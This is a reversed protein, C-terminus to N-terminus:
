PHLPLQRLEDSDAAVPSYAQLAQNLHLMKALLCSQCPWAIAVLVNKM